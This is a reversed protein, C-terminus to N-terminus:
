PRLIFEDNVGDGNKDWEKVRPTSDADTAQRSEPRSALVGAAVAAIALLLGGVFVANTAPTRPFRVSIALVCLFVSLAVM